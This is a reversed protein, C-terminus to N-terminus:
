LVSPLRRCRQQCRQVRRTGRWFAYMLRGVFGNVNPTEYVVANDTRFVTNSYTNSPSATSGGDFPDM